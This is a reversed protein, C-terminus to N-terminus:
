KVIQNVALKCFKNIIEYVEELDNQTLEIDGSELCKRLQDLRKFRSFEKTKM